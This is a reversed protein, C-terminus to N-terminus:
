KRMLSNIGAGRRSHAVGQQDMILYHSLIARTVSIIAMIREINIPQFPERYLPTRHSRHKWVCLFFSFRRGVFRAHILIQIM